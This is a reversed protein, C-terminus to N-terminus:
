RNFLYDYVLNVRENREKINTTRILHLEKIRFLSKNKIESNSKGIQLELESINTILNKMNVINKKRAMDICVFLTYFYRPRNFVSLTYDNYISKIININELFAAYYININDFEKDYKEYYSDIMQPTEDKIGDILFIILSNILEFDRMRSFDKDSFLDWDIFDQRTVRGLEYIFEKFLGWYKANRIEQRNLVYNNTNLRAFMDYIKADDKEKIIQAAIEYELFHEKLEDNLESFKKGKVNKDTFPGKLVFNDNFYDIITRLRQQGDIIERFIKNIKVDISQRIFIPPIPLGRLITDILYSKAQDNWVSNRQFKPSLNLESENYWKTIESINYTKTDFTDGM